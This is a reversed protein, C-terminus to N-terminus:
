GMPVQVKKEEREEGEFDQVPEEGKYFTGVNSDDLVLFINESGLIEEDKMINEENNLVRPEMRPNRTWWRWAPVRDVKILSTHSGSWV